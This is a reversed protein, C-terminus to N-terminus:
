KRIVKEPLGPDVFFIRIKKFIRYDPPRVFYISAPLWEPRIEGSTEQLVMFKKHADTLMQGIEATHEDVVLLFSDHTALWNRLPEVYGTKGCCYIFIDQNRFGFESALRYIEPFTLVPDKTLVAVKHDPLLRAPDGAKHMLQVPDEIYLYDKEKLVANPFVAGSFNAAFVAAPTVYILLRFLGRRYLAQFTYGVALFTGPLAFHWYNISDARSSLLLHMAVYSAPWFLLLLKIPKILASRSLKALGTLYLGAFFVGLLGGWASFSYIIVHVWSKVFVWFWELGEYRLHRLFKYIFLTGYYRRVSDIGLVYVLLVGYVIGAVAVIIAGAILYLRWEERWRRAFFVAIAMPLVFVVIMHLALAVSACVAACILYRNGRKGETSLYCVLFYVAGLFCALAALHVEGSLAAMWFAHSVAMVMTAATAAVLAAKGIRGRWEWLKLCLLYFIALSILSSLFNIVKFFTLAPIKVRDFIFGAAAHLLPHNPHYRSFDPLPVDPQSSQFTSALSYIGEAGAAYNYSEIAQMRLPFFILLLAYAALIAMLPWYRSRHGTAPLLM